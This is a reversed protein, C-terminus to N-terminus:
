NSGIDFRRKRQQQNKELYENYERQIEQAREIQAMFAHDIVHVEKREIDPSMLKSYEDLVWQATRGRVAKVEGKGNLVTKATKKALPVLELIIEKYAQLDAETQIPQEESENPIKSM